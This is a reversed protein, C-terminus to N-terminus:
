CSLAKRLSLGGNVPRAIETCPFGATATDLLVTNM